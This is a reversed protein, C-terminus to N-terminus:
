VCGVWGRLQTQTTHVFRVTRLQLCLTVSDNEQAMALMQLMRTVAAAATTAAVVAKAAANNCLPTPSCQM